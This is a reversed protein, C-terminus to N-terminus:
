QLKKELEELRDKMWKYEEKLQKLEKDREPDLKIKLKPPKYQKREGRLRGLLSDYRELLCDLIAKVRRDKADPLGSLFSYDKGNKRLWDLWEVVEPEPVGRNVLTEGLLYFEHTLSTAFVGPDDTNITVRSDRSLRDNEDLTLRFIPHDDMHTMPSVVRNSSPNVEVVLQKERVISQLKEQVQHCIKLWLDKKDKMEVTIIRSGNKRVGPHYWYKRVLSYAANTGIHQKVEGLVRNQVNAWRKHENGNGRQRIRFQHVERESFEISYPDLQRLRWSDYLTTPAWGQDCEEPVRKEHKYDGRILKYLRQINEEPSLKDILDQDYEGPFKKERRCDSYILKSYRQIMDELSLEGILDHGAGLFNHVWVLTDLWELMPIVSQYGVQAAWVEPQLGLAIAHGLRDGPLPKLFEIVEYIARLGSLLHRFDEGVHYTMGLRRNKVLDAVQRYKGFTERTTSRKRLQIPYERLFRFAPAFVEPPTTLELNAADIGVIFPVVPSHTSLLRFLRFADRRTLRRIKGYRSDLGASTHRKKEFQKHDKKRFHVVIGFKDLEDEDAQKAFALIWPMFRSAGRAPPSLRGEVARLPQAQSLQEVALGEMEISDKALLRRQPAGFFLKFNRLGTTKGHQTGKQWHHTHYIICRTFVQHIFEQIPRYKEKIPTEKYGPDCRELAPDIFAYRVNREVLFRQVTLNLRKLLNIRHRVGTPEKFERQRRHDKTKFWMHQMGPNALELLWDPSTGQKDPPHGKKVLAAFEDIFSKNLGKRAELEELPNRAQYMRDLRHILGFPLHERCAVGMFVYLMGLALLRVAARSLVMLRDAAPTFGEQVGPSSRRLMHDAWAEDANIVGNLHLHGESLGREVVTRLSQYTTHLRGIQVPLELAREMTIYGRVVADAHCYCVLYRIPFRMALEHLEVMREERVCLANGAWQFYHHSLKQFMYVLNYGEPPAMALNQNKSGRPDRSFKDRNRQDIALSFIEDLNDYSYTPLERRLWARIRDEFSYNNGHWSEPLGQREGGEVWCLIPSMMGLVELPLGYSM